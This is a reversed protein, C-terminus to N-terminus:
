VSGSSGINGFFYVGFAGILLGAVFLSYARFGQM